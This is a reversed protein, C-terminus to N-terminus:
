FWGDQMEYCTRDLDNLLAKMWGTRPLEWRFFYACAQLKGQYFDREVPNAAPLRTVAVLGQRLWIWAMVIHGTM